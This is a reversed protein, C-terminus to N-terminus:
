FQFNLTPKGLMSNTPIPLLLNNEIGWIATYGKPNLLFKGSLNNFAPLMLMQETLAFCPISKSSKHLKIGAHFHGVILPKECTNIVEHTLLVTGLAYTNVVESFGLWRYTEEKYTDHNGRILVWSIHNFAAIWTKWTEADANYKSHFLDGVVLVIQPQYHAILLELKTLVENQAAIPLQLGVKLMHAVKGYHIDSLILAKKAANYIAGSSNLEFKAGGFEIPQTANFQM